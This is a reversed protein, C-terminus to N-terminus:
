KSEDYQGNSLIQKVLWDELEDTSGDIVFCKIHHKEMDKITAHQRKTPKRGLAKTEISFMRGKICCLFDLSPVGYGGPVPMYYWAHYHRLVKKVKEKVAGEPTM